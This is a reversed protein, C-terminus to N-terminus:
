TIPPVTNASAFSFPTRSTPSAVLTVSYLPVNWRTFGTPGSTSKPPMSLAVASGICPRKRAGGPAPVTVGSVVNIMYRASVPTGMWTGTQTLEMSETQVLQRALGFDSVKVRPGPGDLNVLLLNDPKIDRHVIGLAHAEALGRAADAILELGTREDLRSRTDLLSGLSSGPVYEMALYSHEGEHNAEILKAVYPSDITALLRSEKEFRRRTVEVDKVHGHLVKIAVQTGQEDEARFVVGVGGQGLYQTLLFRGLRDGVSLRSRNPTEGDAPHSVPIPAAVRTAVLDNSSSDAPAERPPAANPLPTRM